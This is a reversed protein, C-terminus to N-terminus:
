VEDEQEPVLDQDAERQPEAPQGDGRAPAPVPLPQLPIGEGAGGAARQHLSHPSEQLGLLRSPKERRQLNRSATFHFLLYNSVHLFQICRKKIFGPVPVLARGGEGREEGRQMLRCEM